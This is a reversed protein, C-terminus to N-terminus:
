FEARMLEVQLRLSTVKSEQLRLNEKQFISTMIPSHPKLPIFDTVYESGLLCDALCHREEPSSQALSEQRLEAKPSLHLHAIVMHLHTIMM